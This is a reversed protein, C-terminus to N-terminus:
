LLLLAIATFLTCVEISVGDSNVKGDDYHDIGISTFNEKDKSRIVQNVGIRNSNVETNITAEENCDVSEVSAEKKHLTNKEINENYNLGTVVM